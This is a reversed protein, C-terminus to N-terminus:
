TCAREGRAADRPAAEAPQAFPEQAILLAAAMLFTTVTILSRNFITM